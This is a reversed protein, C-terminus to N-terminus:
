YNTVAATLTAQVNTLDGGTFDAGGRSWMNTSGSGGNAATVTAYPRMAKVHGDLFLFNSTTLHGNYLCTDSAAVYPNWYDKEQNTKNSESLVIMQSTNPFQSLVPSPFSTWDTTGSSYGMGGCITGCIPDSSNRYGTNASYHAKINSRDLRTNDNSPCNFVQTSKIYPQLSLRFSQKAGANDLVTDWVMREDYDQAYQMIGLGIQKLNSSCSSRRANERARAFVPFLISALIAIIAIVVLLEILTFGLHAGSRSRKLQNNLSM